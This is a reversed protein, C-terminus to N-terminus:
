VRRNFFYKDILENTLFKIGLENKLIFDNVDKVNGNCPYDLLFVKWSFCYQGTAILKNTKEIGDKDNDFLFRKKPFDTIHSDNIKLGTLGISNEVFISDIPGELINVMLDRNVNYYNYISNYKSGKRSKYKPIMYSYLARGQYYYVKNRNYFPIIIRNKFKGDKCFFWKSYVEEPIKRDLCYQLAEMNKVIPIFHKIIEKEEEIPDAEKETKINDYSKNKVRNPDNKYIESRISHYNSPYYTKLWTLATISVQCNHCYYIWPDKKLIYGRKKFKNTKSDGCVNCKFNFATSTEYVNKFESNLVSKVENTIILHHLPNHWDIQM